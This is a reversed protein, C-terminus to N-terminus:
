TGAKRESHLQIDTRHKLVRAPVGAAIAMDPIDSVVVAGAAIIAGRGITVGDLVIVGYGLWADDGITIGGRSELPQEQIPRDPATGHNYPYFACAPAIEAKRGIRIRGKVASFQCRPQIHTDDGIEISGGQATLLTTEEHIHVRNGLTISGGGPENMLLARDGIFCHNGRHLEDCNLRAGPADFGEAFHRALPVAGSYPKYGRM